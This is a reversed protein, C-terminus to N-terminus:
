GNSSKYKGSTRGTIIKPEVAFLMTRGVKKRGWTIWQRTWFWILTGLIVLGMFGLVAFYGWQWSLEPMHQFNMGYIGAVLTLPLFITAVMSLVRMSENQRHAVSSLYIMLANDARDRIAQNLADIRALHDYIDRYFVQAWNPILQFEGRSLKNITECQPALIRHIRLSSRKLKMTAELTSQQPKRVAVDWLQHFNSRVM